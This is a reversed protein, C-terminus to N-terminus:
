FGCGASTAIETIVTRSESLRRYNDVECKVVANWGFLVIIYIALACLIACACSPIACQASVKGSSECRSGLNVSTRLESPRM